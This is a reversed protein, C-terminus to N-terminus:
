GLEPPLTALYADLATLTKTLTPQLKLILEELGQETGDEGKFQIKKGLDCLEVAGTNAAIGKLVHGRNQLEAFNHQALAQEIQPLTKEAQERFAEVFRHMFGSGLSARSKLLDYDLVPFEQKLAAARQGRGGEGWNKLFVQLLHPQIPKPLYDDMGANLYKERDEAMANATMAIIVPQRDEAFRERVAKAAAVGDLIPMQIDMLILDIPQREMVQLVENGDNAVAPDYGMKKLIKVALLQNIANDEALLVRLPMKEALHQDLLQKGVDGAPTKGLVRCLVQFLSEQKLPKFLPIFALDKRAEADSRENVFQSLVCPIGGQQLRERLRVQLQPNWQDSAFAHAGQDLLAFDYTEQLAAKATDYSAFCSTEVEWGQSLEVVEQAFDPNASVLMGKMRQPLALPKTELLGKSKGLNLTFYFDSGDGLRSEAWMTGDMIEALRKSITLGLGTGGYKRTTSSDAQSFAKFLRELQSTEIGIGTDSVCFRLELGSGPPGQEVKIKIQGHSTFKVANGLLNILIQKIRTIDGLVVEPLGPELHYFLELEKEAAPMSFIDLSEEIAQRLVLPQHELHLKGAEIKSFDLIDNIIRLLNEGSIKLTKVYQQQELTLETEQLLNSMGILGNMPTRIEHSMTALFEAKAKASAEADEKAKKLEAAQWKAATVDEKIGLFNVIRGSADLIPSISVKEWYLM